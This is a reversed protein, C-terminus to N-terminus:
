IDIIVASRSVLEKDGNTEQQLLDSSGCATTYTVRSDLRIPAPSQELVPQVVRTSQGKHTQDEEGEETM